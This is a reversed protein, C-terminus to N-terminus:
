IEVRLLLGAIPFYIWQSHVIRGGAILADRYHQLQGSYELAKTKCQEANGQYSKHDVIIWGKPTEAAFDVFGKVWTGDTQAHGFPLEVEFAHAGFQDRLLTRLNEAARVVEAGNVCAALGHVNLLEQARDAFCASDFSENQLVAAFVAHVGNGLDVDECRARVPLRRGVSLEQSVRAGAIPAVSSPLCHAPAKTQHEVPEPFWHLEAAPADPRVPTEPPVIIKKATQTALFLAINDPAEIVAKLGNAFGNGLVGQPWSPESRERTALILQDRARTFGVYLLRLEERLAAKEAQQGIASQRGNQALACDTGGQGFPWPWFRLRRGHLPDLPNFDEQDMVSVENWLRLRPEKNLEACIVVPWELGKAGHYTFVQIADANADVAIPDADLNNISLLFGAVTAPERASACLSEYEAALGRLAEVNARRQAARAEGPGWATVVGLVNGVTLAEDLIERPSASRVAGRANELAVLTNNAADGEMGWQGSKNDPNALWELRDQLWHEVMDGRSLAIITASALTDEPDALRKLCALAFSAEPTALLGSSERTVPIGRDALAGAIDDATTNTRCLVVVDRKRLPRLLKTDKNQIQIPSGLMEQIGEAIAHSAQSNTPSKPKGDSKNFQGSSAVWVALPVPLQTDDTRAPALKVEANPLGHSSEFAPAFLSNFWECLEPRTRYSQGLPPNVGGRERLIRLVGSMLEPDSGRFGYIAQKMDGVWISKVRVLNALKLFLALQMPSTDQFEDVLLLDFEDHIVEQVQPHDLLDVARAELDAFDLQGREEKRRRYSELSRAAIDFTLRILDALDQHLEPHEEVRAAVTKLGDFADESKKGPKLNALKFWGAWPLRGGYLDRSSQRAIELADATAKTADVALDLESELADLAKQLLLNLDQETRMPLLSLLERASTDAMTDLETPSIGNEVARNMVAKVKLKWTSNKEQNWQGLRQALREMAEVNDPTCESEIVESVVVQAAREDLVEVRPSLGAEFAFRTILRQCISHVTGILSEELGRAESVLKESYLKQRVREALEGAAANTFTAAIIAKPRVSKAAIGQHMLNTLETTKGSGAGATTIR